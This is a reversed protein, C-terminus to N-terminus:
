KVKTQSTKTGRPADLKQKFNYLQMANGRTNQCDFPAKLSKKCACNKRKIEREKDREMTM